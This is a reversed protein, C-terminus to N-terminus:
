GARVPWRAADPSSLAVVLASMLRRPLVLLMAPHDMALTLPGTARNSTGIRTAPAFRLGKIDWQLGASEGTVPGLPFLSVVDGNRTPLSIQPPALCIVEQKGLLICPRDAMAALTHFAALQHDTRGGLFGVGLVVPAVIRGLAKEFDTSDQEAIRYHRDQPIRALVADSVSDFDGIVAALDVGTELVIAAGGDAAVCIPALRLAKELDAITADGGGVLTVPAASHVIPDFM